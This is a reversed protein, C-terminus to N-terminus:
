LYDSSFELIEWSVLKPRNPNEKDLNSYYKVSIIHNKMSNLKKLDFGISKLDELSLFKESFTVTSIGDPLISSIEM